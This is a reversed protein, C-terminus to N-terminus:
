DTANDKILRNVKRTLRSFCSAKIITLADLVDALTIPQTKILKLTINRHNQELLAISKMNQKAPL